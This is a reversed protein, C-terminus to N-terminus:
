RELIESKAENVDFNPQDYDGLNYDLWFIALCEPNDDGLFSQMSCCIQLKRMNFFFYYNSHKPTESIRKLEIVSRDTNQKETFREM